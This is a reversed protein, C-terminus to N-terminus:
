WGSDSKQLFIFFCMKEVGNQVGRLSFLKYFWALDADSPEEPPASATGVIEDVSAGMVYDSLYTINIEDATQTSLVAIKQERIVERLYRDTMRVDIADLAALYALTKVDQKWEQNTREEDRYGTLAADFHAQIREYFTEVEDGSLWRVIMLEGPRRHIHYDNTSLSRTEPLNLLEAAEGASEQPLVPSGPSKSKELRGMSRQIDRALAPDFGPLIQAEFKRCGEFVAAIEAHMRFEDSKERAREAPDFSHEVPEENPEDFM